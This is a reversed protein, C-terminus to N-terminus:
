ALEGTLHFWRYVTGFLGFRELSARPAVSQAAAIDAFDSANVAEFKTM